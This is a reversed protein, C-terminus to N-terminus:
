SQAPIYAASQTWSVAEPETVFGLALQVVTPTASSILHMRAARLEYLGTGEEWRSGLYAATNRVHSEAHSLTLIAKALRRAKRETPVQHSM